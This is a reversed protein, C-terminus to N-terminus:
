TQLLEGRVIEAMARGANFESIGDIKHLAGDSLINNKRWIHRLHVRDLFQV